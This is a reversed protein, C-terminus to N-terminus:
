VYTDTENRFRNRKMIVQVGQDGLYYLTRSFKDGLCSICCIVCFYEYVPYTIIINLTGFIDTCLNTLCLFIKVSFNGWVITHSCVLFEYNGLESVVLSLSM